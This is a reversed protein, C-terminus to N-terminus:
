ESEGLESPVSGTTIMFAVVPNSASDVIDYVYGTMTEGGGFDFRGEDLVVGNGFGGNDSDVIFEGALGDICEDGDFISVLNIVL